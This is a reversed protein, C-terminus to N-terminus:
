YQIVLFDPQTFTSIWTIILTLLAATGLQALPPCMPFRLVHRGAALIPGSQLLIKQDIYTEYDRYHNYKTDSDWENEEDDFHSERELEVWHNRAWGIVELVIQYITEQQGMDVIVRGKVEEGPKFLNHSNELEIYFSNLGM